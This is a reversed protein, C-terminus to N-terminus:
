QKLQYMPQRILSQYVQMTAVVDRRCYEAIDDLRNERWYADGVQSGDIEAKPSEVGLLYCLEDLSAYSGGKGAFAWIESTDLARLTWPKAEFDPTQPLTRDTKHILARKCIFPLDFNKINHGMVWALNMQKEKEALKANMKVAKDIFANLLRAEDDGRVDDVFLEQSNELMLGFAICVIKAYEPHLGSKELYSEEATEYDKAYWKAHKKRWLTQYKEPADGLDAYERATEIDFCLIKNYAPYM